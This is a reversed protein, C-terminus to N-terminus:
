DNDKALSVLGRIDFALVVGDEPCSITRTPEGQLLEASEQLGTPPLSYHRPYVSLLVQRGLKAVARLAGSPRLAKGVHDILFLFVVLSLLCAYAAAESTLRPASTDIRLLAALAFTFTFVFFTLSGKTIPDRFVLAIIRPSLQASALQVAILLASSVFVIFTFMSSAMTGLVAQLADPHFSSQWGTAADIRYLLRVLAFALLIGLLPPIWISNTVYHRVRYRQLWTM